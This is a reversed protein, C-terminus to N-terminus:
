KLAKDILDKPWGSDLLKAKIDSDNMGGARSNKVYKYLEPYNGAQNKGAGNPTEKTVKGLSGASRRRLIFLSAAIVGVIIVPVAIKIPLPLNDLIDLLGPTCERTEDSPKIFSTGCNNLDKCVKPQQSNKCTGWKCDWNEICCDRTQVYQYNTQVCRNRDTCIQSQENNEDCYSWETCEWNPICQYVCVESETRTQSCRSCSRTRLGDASCASWTSCQWDELCTTGGGGGGGGGGTSTCQNDSTCQDACNNTASPTCPRPECNNTGVCINQMVVNSGEVYFTQYSEAIIPDCGGVKDCPLGIGKLKININYYANAYSPAHTDSATLLGKGELASFSLDYVNDWWNLRTGCSYPNTSCTGNECSLCSLSIPVFESVCQSNSCYYEILGPQTETFPSQTSCSDTFNGNTGSCTGKVYPNKGTPYVTNSDNDVCNGAPNLICKGESCGAYGYDLCNYETLVCQTGFNGCSYDLLVNGECRDTSTTGSLNDFCSTRETLYNFQNSLTPSLTCKYTTWYSWTIQNNTEDSECIVNSPDLIIKLYEGPNGKANNVQISTSEGSALNSITGTQYNTCFEKVLNGTIPAIAMADVNVALTSSCKKVLYNVSASQTGKNTVGVILWNKLSVYQTGSIEFDNRPIDAYKKNDNYNSEYITREPNAEIWFKKGELNTDNIQVSIKGGAPISNVTFEKLVGSCIGDPYAYTTPIPDAIDDAPIYVAMASIPEDPLSSYSKCLIVKFNGTSLSTGSNNFTINLTKTKCNYSNNTYSEVVINPLESVRPIRVRLENNNLVTEAPNSDFVRAVVYSGEVNTTGLNFAINTERGASLTQTITKTEITSCFSTVASGTTQMELQEASAGERCLNISFSSADKTGVNKVKVVVQKNLAFHDYSIGSITLDPYTPTEPLPVYFTDENNNENTEIIDNNKDVIFGVTKGVYNTLDFNVSDSTAMELQEAQAKGMTITKEEVFVWCNNITTIISDGTFVAYASEATQLCKSDPVSPNRYYLGVNFSIQETLLTKSSTVIVQMNKTETNYVKNSIYLDGGLNVANGTIPAIVEASVPPKPVVIPSCYTFGFGSSKELDAIERGANLYKGEKYNGFYPVTSDYAQIFEKLTFIEKTGCTDFCKGSDCRLNEYYNGQGVQNVNCCSGISTGCTYYSKSTTAPSCKTWPTSDADTCEKTNKDYNKWKIKANNACIYYLPCEPSSLSYEIYADEPILDDRQFILSFSGQIPDGPNFPMNVSAVDLTNVINGTLRNLPSETVILNFILLLAVFTLFIAFPIAPFGFFLKRDPNRKRYDVKKISVM